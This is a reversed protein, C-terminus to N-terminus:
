LFILALLIAMRGALIAPMGWRFMRKRTKHRFVYMGALGGAGGLLASTVLLTSERIRWKGHRARHKDIGMLLFPTVNSCLLLLAANGICM